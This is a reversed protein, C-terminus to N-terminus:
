HVFVVARSAQREGLFATVYYVGDPLGLSKADFQFSETQGAGVERTDSTYVLRGLADHVVIGLAGVSPVTLQVSTSTSFPNPEITM